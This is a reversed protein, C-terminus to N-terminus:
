EVSVTASSASLKPLNYVEKMFELDAPRGRIFVRDRIPTKMDTSKHAEYEKNYTNHYVTQTMDNEVTEHM